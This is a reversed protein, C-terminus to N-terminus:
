ARTGSEVNPGGQITASPWVKISCPELTLASGEMDDTTAATRDRRRFAPQSSAKAARHDPQVAGCASM